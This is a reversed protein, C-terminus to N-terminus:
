PRDFCSNTITFFTTHRQRVLRIRAPARQAPPVWLIHIAGEDLTTPSKGKRWGCYEVNELLRLPADEGPPWRSLCGSAGVTGRPNVVAQTKGFM